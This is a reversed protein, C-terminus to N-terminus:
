RIIASLAQGVSPQPPPYYHKADGHAPCSPLRFFYHETEVMLLYQPHVMLLSLTALEILFGHDRRSSLRNESRSGMSQLYHWPGLIFVRCHRPLYICYYNGWKKGLPSIGMRKPLWVCFYPSYRMVELVIPCLTCISGPIGDVVGAAWVCMALTLALDNISAQGLDTECDMEQAQTGETTIDKTGSPLISIFVSPLQCYGRISEKILSTLTIVIFFPLYLGGFINRRFLGPLLDFDINYGSLFPLTSGKFVQLICPHYTEKVNGSFEGTQSRSFVSPDKLIVSSQWVSLWTTVWKCSSPRHPVTALACSCPRLYRSCLEQSTPTNKEMQM